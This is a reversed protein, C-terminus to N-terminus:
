TGAAAASALGPCPNPTGAPKVDHTLVHLTHLKWTGDVRVATGEGQSIGVEDSM